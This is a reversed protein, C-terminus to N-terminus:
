LEKYFLISYFILLTNIVLSYFRRPHFWTRFLVSGSSGPYLPVILVFLICLICPMFRWLYKKVNKHPRPEPGSWGKGVPFVEQFGSLAGRRLAASGRELFRKNNKTGWMKPPYLGGTRFRLGETNGKRRGAGGKLGWCPCIGVTVGETEMERWVNLLLVFQSGNLQGHFPM